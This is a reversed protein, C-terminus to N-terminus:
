KEAWYGPRAKVKVERGPVRVSLKHWGVKAAGSPTYSLLYRHRYEDLVKLFAQGLDKTTEIEFLSGGSADTLTELFESRGGRKTAVAYVV